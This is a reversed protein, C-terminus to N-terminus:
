PEEPVPVDNLNEPLSDVLADLEAKLTLYDTRAAAYDVQAVIWDRDTGLRPDLADGLLMKIELNKAQIQSCLGNAYGIFEEVTAM